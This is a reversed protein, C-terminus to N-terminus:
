VRCVSLAIGLPSVLGPRPIVPRSLFARLSSAVVMKPEQLSSTNVVALTFPVASNVAQSHTRGRSKATQSRREPNEGWGKSTKRHPHPPSCLCSAGKASVTLSSVIQGPLSSLAYCRFLDRPKGHLNSVGELHHPARQEPPNPASVLHPPPLDLFLDLIRLHQKSLLFATRNPSKLLFHNNM